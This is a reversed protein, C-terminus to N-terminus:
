ISEFYPDIRKLRIILTSREESDLDFTAIRQILLIYSNPFRSLAYESLSKAEDKFGQSAFLEIVFLYKEPDSMQNSVAEKVSILDGSKLASIFRTDSTFYPSYLLLAFTATLAGFISQYNGAKDRRIFETEKYIAGGLALGGFLWGWVALGLNDISIQAQFLYALYFLTIGVFISDYQTNVILRRIAVGLPLLQISFIILFVIIGSSALHDLLVNHASSSGVKPGLLEFSREDRYSRFYDGYSSSGLGFWFNDRWMALATRWYEVRILLTQQKLSSSLPGIGFAGCALMSFIFVFFAVTLNLWRKIKLLYWTKIVISGILGLAILILGQLSDTKITVYTIALCLVLIFFRQRSKIDNSLTQPFLFCFLMGLISSSFNPNGLTLMIPNYLVKWDVPDLNFIQLLGYSVLILSLWVFLRTIEKSLGAKLSLNTAAGFIVALAIYALLGNNRGFSGFLQQFINGKNLVDSLLKISIMLPLALRFFSIIRRDSKNEYLTYPNKFIFKTFDLIFYGAMVVLIFLKIQNIPDHNITPTIALTVVAAFILLKQIERNARNLKVFAKKEKV